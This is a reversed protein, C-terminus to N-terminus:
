QPLHNIERLLPEPANMVKSAASDAGRLGSRRGLGERIDAKIGLVRLAPFIRRIGASL